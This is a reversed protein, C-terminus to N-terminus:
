MCIVMYRSHVPEILEAGETALTCTPLGMSGTSDTSGTSGPWGSSDSSAQPEPIVAPKGRNEGCLFSELTLGEGVVWPNRGVLFCIDVTKIANRITTVLM